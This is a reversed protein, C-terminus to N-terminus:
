RDLDVIARAEPAPRPAQWMQVLEDREILDLVRQVFAMDVYGVVTDGHEDEGWKVLDAKSDKRWVAIEARMSDGPKGANLTGYNDGYNGNGWQISLTWGNLTVWCGAHYDDERKEIVAGPRKFVDLNDLSFKQDTVSTM